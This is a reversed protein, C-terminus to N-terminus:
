SSMSRPPPRAAGASEPLPMVSEVALYLLEDELRLRAEVARFLAHAEAAFREPEAAILAVTCWRRVTHGVDSGLDELERQLRGALAALGPEGCALLAPYMADEQMARHQRFAAAFAHLQCNLPVGHDLVGTHLMRRMATMAVQMADRHERWTETQM